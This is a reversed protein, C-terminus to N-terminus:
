QKRFRKRGAAGLGAIGMGLLLMTGPEPVAAKYIGGEIVDNACTMTWHFGLDLEDEWSLGFASLNFAYSILSGNHSFAFNGVPSEFNSNEPDDVPSYLVEQNQRYWASNIGLDGMVKNSLLINNPDVEYILESSTHLAYEWSTGTQYTDTLYGSNPDGYPKWGKTTVFLDGYTTREHGDRYDTKIKVQVNGNPNIIVKMWDIDFSNIDSSLAIVDGDLQSWSGTHTGGYYNDYIKWMSAHASGTLWFFIVTLFIISRKM